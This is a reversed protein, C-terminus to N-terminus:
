AFFGHIFWGPDNDGEYHGARFLWFRKGEEDEVVYYDRLLAPQIWWESEIREPGDAKKIIHLKNNYRFNMPPYDPIPATVMVPQPQPLLQIPRRKDARWEIAPREKLSGALKVSREPLHHEDPLYRHAVQSGFRSELNDLLEAIETSELSSNATWFTQQFTQLDELKPAELVFLEIGLAPEIYPIKLAFLRSLHSINHSPHNTSVQVQQLKGDIRYGKLIAVRLGKGEKQLRSCLAQLLQELAIEIGTAAQIPELCPLRESYPEIPFLPERFEEKIGLAQDIRLLLDEGFRRRLASRQMNMFNGANHLGLKLLREVTGPQLRLSAPPLPMLAAAQEGPKIIAKIKGFRCVAWACGITDSMAVRIHYGFGKLKNSLDRLYHEESGWLHTCGTVDLILGDPEDMVVFPTYRICWLGLKKLLQEAYGQKDDFVQLVPLIIRADAVVMGAYIGKAKALAAPETVLMRGHDPFALVFPVEKLAQQRRIM